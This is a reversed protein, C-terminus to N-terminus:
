SVTRQGAQRFRSRIGNQGGAATQWDPSTQAQARIVPPRVMGVLVPMVIAAMAATGLAVRRAWNLRQGRRNSMISEIRKKLNSGMVGSVCPLPSEVYLKCIKLIGEAYVEPENSRLVEEDCALEREEVLRAGIWWVLPHFWFTAQVLMHIVGTLNDRRRVHSREHALIAQLQEPTLCDMMGEPMLLVPRLIGWVGPEILSTSTRVPVPFPLELPASCRLISRMWSWRYLWHGLVAIIGCAWVMGLIPILGVAARKAAPAPAKPIAFPQAAAEIAAAVGPQAIAPVSAPRRNLHSGAAVLIAFPVFFKISAVM